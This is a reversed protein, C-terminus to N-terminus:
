RPIFFILWPLYRTIKRPCHASLLLYIGTVDLLIGTGSGIAGMFDAFITLLGICMGGLIAAAPITRNLQQYVNEENERIGEM